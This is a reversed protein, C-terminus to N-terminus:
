SLDPSFGFQLTPDIWFFWSSLKDLFTHVPRCKSRLGQTEVWQSAAEPVVLNACRGQGLLNM